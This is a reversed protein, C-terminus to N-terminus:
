VQIWQAEWIHLDINKMLNLFNEGMIEEFVRGYDTM